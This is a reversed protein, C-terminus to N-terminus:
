RRRPRAPRPYWGRSPRWFIRRAPVSVDSRSVRRIRRASTGVVLLHEPRRRNRESSTRSGVPAPSVSPSGPSDLPSPFGNVPLRRCAMIKPLTIAENVTFSGKAGVPQSGLNSCSIHPASKFNLRSVRKSIDACSTTTSRCPFNRLHLALPITPDDRGRTGARATQRPCTHWRSLVQAGSDLPKWSPTARAPNRTRAPTHRKLLATFSFGSLLFRVVSEPM